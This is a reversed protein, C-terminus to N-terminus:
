QVRPVKIGIPGTRIEIRKADSESPIIYINSSWGEKVFTLMITRLEYNSMLNWQYKPMQEKFFAALREMEGTGEYVVLGTKITGTEYVFSEKWNLTMGPPIPIDEFRFSTPIPARQRVESSGGVQPETVTRHPFLDCGYVVLVSISIIGAGCIKVWKKEKM